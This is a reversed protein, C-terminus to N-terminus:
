WLNQTCFRLLWQRNIHLTTTVNPFQMMRQKCLHFGSKDWSIVIWCNNCSIILLFWINDARLTGIVREQDQVHAEGHYVLELSYGSELLQRAVEFSCNCKPCSLDGQALFTDNPDLKLEKLAEDAVKMFTDGIIKRKEEPQVTQNLSKTLHKKVGVNSSDKPGSIM